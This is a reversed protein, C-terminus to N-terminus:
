TVFLPTRWKCKAATRRSFSAGGDTRILTGDKRYMRAWTAWHRDELTGPNSELLPMIDATVNNKQLEKRLEQFNENMSPRLRSKDGFWETLRAFKM